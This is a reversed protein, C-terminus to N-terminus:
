FCVFHIKESSAIEFGPFVVIDNSSLLRRIADVGDVNGHDAMGVVKVEAELCADLLQQNYEGETLLQAQGRYKIYASPNVQLACKWFRAQTYQYKHKSM